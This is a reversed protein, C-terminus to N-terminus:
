QSARNTKNLLNKWYKLTQMMEFAHLGSKFLPPKFKEHDLSKQPRILHQQKRIMISKNIKQQRSIQLPRM